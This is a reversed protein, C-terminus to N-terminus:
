YDERRNLLQCRDRTCIHGIWSGSFVKGGARGSTFSLLNPNRLLCLRLTGVQAVGIQGLCPKLLCMQILSAQVPGAQALRVQFSRM